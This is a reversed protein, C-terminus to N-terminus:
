RQPSVDDSEHELLRRWGLYSALYKTAVGNVRRMWTKLRSHYANVNQIHHGPQRFGGPLQRWGTAVRM